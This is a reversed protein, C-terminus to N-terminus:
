YCRQGNIIVGSNSEILM